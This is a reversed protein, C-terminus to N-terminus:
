QFSRIQIKSTNKEQKSINCVLSSYVLIFRPVCLDTSCSSTHTCQIHIPTWMNIRSKWGCVYVRMCPQFTLPITFSCAFITFFNDQVCCVSKLQLTVFVISNSWFLCFQQYKQCAFCLVIKKFYSDLLFDLKLTHETKKIKPNWNNKAEFEKTKPTNPLSHTYTECKAM